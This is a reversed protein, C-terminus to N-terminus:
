LAGRKSFKGLQQRHQWANVEAQIQPQIEEFSFIPRGSSISRDAARQIGRFIAMLKADCRAWDEILLRDAASLATRGSEALFKDKIHGFRVRQADTLQVTTTAPQDHM